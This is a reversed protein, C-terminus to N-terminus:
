IFHRVAISWLIERSRSHRRATESALVHRRGCARWWRGSSSKSKLHIGAWGCRSWKAWIQRTRVKIARTWCSVHWSRGLRRAHSRIRTKILEATLRVQPSYKWLLYLEPEPRQDQIQPVRIPIPIKCPNWSYHYFTPLTKFDNKMNAFVSLYNSFNPISDTQILISVFRFIKQRQFNKM